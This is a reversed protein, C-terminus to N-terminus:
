SSEMNQSTVKVLKFCGIEEEEKKDVSVKFCYKCDKHLYSLTVYYYKEEESYKMEYKKEPYPKRCFMSNEGTIDYLILTINHGKEYKFLLKAKGKASISLPETAPIIEVIQSKELNKRKIEIEFSSLTWEELKGEKCLKGSFLKIRYKGDELYIPLKFSLLRGSFSPEGVDLCSFNGKENTYVLKWSNNEYREIEIKPISGNILIYPYIPPHVPPHVELVLTANEYDYEAHVINPKELGCYSCCPPPGCCTLCTGEPKQPPKFMKLYTHLGFFLLLALIVVTFIIKVKKKM